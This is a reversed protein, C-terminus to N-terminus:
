YIRWNRRKKRRTVISAFKIKSGMFDMNHFGYFWRFVLEFLGLCFSIFEQETNYIKM